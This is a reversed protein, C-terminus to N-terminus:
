LLRQIPYTLVTRYESSIESEAKIADAEEDFIGFVTSGSGSLSTYKAGYAQILEKIRGIEPYTPIVVLEFDNEFLELPSEDGQFLNAFNHPDTERELHKKVQSYAQSTDISIDPIVLLYTGTIPNEISTLKDGIGEGLQTGGQIFFPVDAGISKGLNMLKHDTGNTKYLTNLGKLITAVNSSGGGLGGGAPIKKNLEISVGTPIQYYDSFVDWAQVCLNSIDNKLWEVNSSFKCGHNIKTLSISDCFSIEQFISQINHYGDPRKSVIRLGINVKACSKLTLTNKL